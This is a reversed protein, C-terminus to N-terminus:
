DGRRRAAHLFVTVLFFMLLGASVNLFVPWAEPSLSVLKDTGHLEAIDKFFGRMFILSVIEYQKAISQTTSRPLAGILMLVEYFLIFSFPTYIASLYNRSVAGMLAPPSALTRALFILALHAILGAVSLNVVLRDLQKQRRESYLNDFLADLAITWRSLSM